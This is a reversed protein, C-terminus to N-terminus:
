PNRYNAELEANSFTVAEGKETAAGRDTKAVGYGLLNATKSPTITIM